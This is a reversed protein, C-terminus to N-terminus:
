YEGYNSKYRNRLVVYTILLAILVVQSIIITIGLLIPLITGAINGCPLNGAGAPTFELGEFSKFRCCAWGEAITGCNKGLCTERQFVDVFFALLLNTELPCNNQKWCENWKRAIDNDRCGGQFSTRCENESSGCVCIENFTCNRPSKPCNSTIALQCRSPNGRCGLGILCESSDLCEDNQGKFFFRLSM